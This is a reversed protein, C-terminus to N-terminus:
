GSVPRRLVPLRLTVRGVSLRATSPMGVDLYVLNTASQATSSPALTLRLRSRAPISTAQSLLRFSVTRTRRGLSPTKAGGSSVIIERGDPTLASLVAVLHPWGTTTRGTVRVTPAGFTELGARLPRLTRAVKGTAAMTWRGALTFSLTRTPPLGGYQFTTGTWPDPALEVPPRTDIGNPVGKLWRDFWLPVQTLYYPREAPPNPAPPHGLGGIYLRKPGQLARFARAAQEVDFAYDRRGQLMFTPTRIQGLLERVSRERAFTRLTPLDRSQIASERIANVEPASRAAPVLQLFQFVVGSKALDQPALADYLDTWTMVPVIAAYPVGEAASRWVAGGGLSFGIAGIRARGIGPQSALWDFLERVDQIERPGDVSFLGGSAGHGRADMTLVAYGEPALFAEAIPNMSQRTGGLGHFMMVAPWGGAPATGDPTYLTAVITAGDSMPLVLDRKTFSAAAAADALVAAVLAALLFRRLPRAM